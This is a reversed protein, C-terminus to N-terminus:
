VSVLEVFVVVAIFRYGSDFNGGIKLLLIFSIFANIEQFWFKYTRHGYNDM